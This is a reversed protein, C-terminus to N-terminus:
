IRFKKNNNQIQIVSCLNREIKKCLKMRPQWMRKIREANSADKGGDIKMLGNARISYITFAVM